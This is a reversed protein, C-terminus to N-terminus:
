IEFGSLFYSHGLGEAIKASTYIAEGIAMEEADIVNKHIPEKCTETEGITSSANKM